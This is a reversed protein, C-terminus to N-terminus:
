KLGRIAALFEDAFSGGITKAIEEAEKLAEARIAKAKDAFLEEQMSLEFAHRKRETELIAKADLPAAYLEVPKGDVRDSFHCACGREFCDQSIYVPEQKLAETKKNMEYCDLFTFGNCDLVM